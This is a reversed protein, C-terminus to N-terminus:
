VLLSSSVIHTLKWTLLDGRPLTSFARPSDLPPFLFNQSLWATHPRYGLCGWSVLLSCQTAVDEGPTSPSWTM